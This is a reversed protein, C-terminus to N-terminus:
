SSKTYRITITPSYITMSSSAAARLYGSNYSWRIRGDDVGIESGINNLCEVSAIIELGSFEIINTWTNNSLSFNSNLQFTKEYLTKGDVWTGVIQEDTSYHHTPVGQPTWSGSGATDTTKTYQITMIYGGTGRNAGIESSYGITIESNSITNIYAYYQNNGNFWTVPSFTNNATEFLECSIVQVFEADLSSIDIVKSTGTLATTDILTKQYLPKGDTWVGIEREQLSYIVPNYFDGGLVDVITKNNVSDDTVEVAGTFQLGSRATMTNGDEDIITHGGTGGGGGSEVAKTLELNTMAYPQFTADSDSALRLMPKFVINNVTQGSRVVCAIQLYAGNNSYDDGNIEILVGDGYDTGLNSASGSITVSAVIYFTSSSGGSCGSLIYKGNPIFLDTPRGESSSRRVHCILNSNSTTATGNATATGDDNVVWTIGNEVFTGTEYYPLANLNKAGLVGNSAFVNKTVDGVTAKKSAYGGGSAQSIALIDANDVQSASTLESFSKM